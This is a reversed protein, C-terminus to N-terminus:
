SGSPLSASEGVQLPTAPEQIAVRNTEHAYPYPNQNSCQRDSHKALKPRARQPKSSRPAVGARHKNTSMRRAGTVNVRGSCKAILSRASTRTTPRADCQGRLASLAFSACTHPDPLEPPWWGDGPVAWGRYAASPWRSGATQAVPALEMTARREATGAEGHRTQYRRQAGSRRGQREIESQHGVPLLSTSAPLTRLNLRQLRASTAGSRTSISPDSRPMLTSRGLPPDRGPQRSCIHRFLPPAFRRDVLKTIVTM